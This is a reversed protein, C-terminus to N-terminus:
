RGTVARLSYVMYQGSKRREPRVEGLNASRYSDALGTLGSSGYLILDVEEREAFQIIEATPDGAMVTTTTSLQRDELANAAIELLNSSGQGPEGSEPGDGRRNSRGFFNRSEIVQVIVTNVLSKKVFNLGWELDKETSVAGNYALLIKKLVM